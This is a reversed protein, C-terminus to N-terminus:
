APTCNRAVATTQTSSSRTTPTQATGYCDAGTHGDDGATWPYFAGQYGNAAADHEAAALTHYRYEVDARAIDPHGALIAPFMWVGSARAATNEWQLSPTSTGAAKSTMHSTHSALDVVADVPDLRSAGSGDLLSTVSAQGTWLPTLRLSVVGM